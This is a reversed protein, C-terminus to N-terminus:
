ITIGDLNEYEKDLIERFDRYRKDALDRQATAGLFEEDVDCLAYINESSVSQVDGAGQMGGVGVCGINLKDSPAKHGPGGLVHRPVCTFDAAAAADIFERRTVQEKRHGQTM